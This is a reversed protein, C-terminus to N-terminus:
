PPSPRPPFAPASQAGHVELLLRAGLELDDVVAARRRCRLVDDRAVDVHVEVLGRIGNGLVLGALDFREGHGRGFRRAAAGLSGV